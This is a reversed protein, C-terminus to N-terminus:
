KNNLAGDDFVVGNNATHIQVLENNLGKINEFISEIDPLQKSIKNYISVYSEFAINRQNINYIIKKRKAEDIKSNKLESILKNRNAIISDYAFKKNDNFINIASTLEKTKVITEELKKKNAEFLGKMSLQYQALCRDMTQQRNYKIDTISVIPYAVPIDDKLTNCSTTDIFSEKIIEGDDKVLIACYEQGQHLMVPHASFKVSQTIGSEKQPKMVNKLDSEVLEVSGVVDRMNIFIKTGNPDIAALYYIVYGDGDRVVIPDDDKKYGQENLTREVNNKIISENYSLPISATRLPSAAATNAIATPSSVPSPANKPSLTERKPNLQTIKPSSAKTGVGSLTPRSLMKNDSEKKNDIDKKNRLNIKNKLEENVDKIFKSKENIDKNKVSQYSKIMELYKRKYIDRANKKDDEEMDKIIEEASNVYSEINNLIDEEELNDDKYNEDLSNFTNKGIYYDVNKQARSVTMGQAAIRKKREETDLSALLPAIKVIHEQQDQENRTSVGSSDLTIYGEEPFMKTPSLNAGGVVPPGYFNKAEQEDIDFVPVMPTKGFMNNIPPKIANNKGANRNKEQRKREMEQTKAIMAVKDAKEQAAAKARIEAATKNAAEKEEKTLAPPVVLKLKPKAAASM